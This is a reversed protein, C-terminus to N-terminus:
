REPTSARRRNVFVLLLAGAGAIAAGTGIMAHTSQLGTAAMAGGGTKPGTSPVNYGVVHLTTTATQQSPCTLRVRYAQAKKDTPITATGRHVVKGTQTNAQPTITVVGFADSTVTAPNVNDGCYAEIEVQFGAQITSPTIRLYEGDALAPAPAALVSAGIAAAAAARLVSRMM